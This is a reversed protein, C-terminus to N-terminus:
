SSDTKNKLVAALWASSLLAGYVGFFGNGAVYFPAGLTTTAAAFVWWICLAYAVWKMSTRELRAPFFFLFLAIILSIVSAVIAWAPYGSCGGSCPGIAAGMTVLSAVALFFVPKRVSHLTKDMGYEFSESVGVLSLASLVFAGWTSFYGAARTTLTFDGFYTLVIV